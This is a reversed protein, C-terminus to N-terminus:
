DSKLSDLQGIVPLEGMLESRITTMLYSEIHLFKAAQMAGMATKVKTYYTKQLTAQAADNKFIRNILEDAKANTMKEYHDAYDTIILIRERGLKRREVEYKDYIPWFKLSDSKSLAMGLWVLERKDKGWEEQIQQIEDEQAFASYSLSLIFLASFFKKFSNM